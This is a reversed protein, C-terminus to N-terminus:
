EEVKALLANIFSKAEEGCYIKSLEIAENIAVKFPVSEDYKM